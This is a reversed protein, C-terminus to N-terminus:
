PICSRDLLSAPGQLASINGNTREKGSSERRLDIIARTLMPSSICITPRQMGLACDIRKRRCEFRLPPQVHRQPPRSTRQPRAHCQMRSYGRHVYWELAISPLM